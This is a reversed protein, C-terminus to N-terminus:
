RKKYEIERGEVLNRITNVASEVEKVPRPKSDICRVASDGTGIGLIIRGPAVEYATLISNATVSPDRTYPNTVATGLKVKSTNLACLAMSVYPDRYVMQSDGFWIHEFGGAEAEKALEAMRRSPLYTGGFSIGFKM